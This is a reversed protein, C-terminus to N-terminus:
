ELKGEFVIKRGCPEIDIAGNREVEHFVPEEIRRVPIYGESRMREICQDITEHDEVEFKRKSHKSM